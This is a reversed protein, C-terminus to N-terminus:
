RGLTHDAEARAIFDRVFTARRDISNRPVPLFAYRAREYADVLATHFAVVADFSMTREEDVEYIDEWPEFLLVTGHYRYRESASVSLTPDTGLVTAYAVCDPVGRDFLTTAGGRVCAEHEDISRRLLLDVFRSPDRDPFGPGAPRDNSTCSRERRSV